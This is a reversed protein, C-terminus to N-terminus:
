SFVMAPTLWFDPSRNANPGVPCTAGACARPPGRGCPRPHPREYYPLPVAYPDEPPIDERCLIKVWRPVCVEHLGCCACGAPDGHRDQHICPQMRRDLPRRKNDCEEYEIEWVKAFYTDQPVFCDCDGNPEPCRPQKRCCYFKLVEARSVCEWRCRWAKTWACQQDYGHPATGRGCDLPHQAWLCTWRQVWFETKKSCCPTNCFAGPPCPANCCVNNPDYPCDEGEKGHCRHDCHRDHRRMRSEEEGEAEEEEEWASEEFDSEQHPSLGEAVAQSRAM